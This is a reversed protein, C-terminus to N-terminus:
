MNEPLCHSTQRINLILIFHNWTFFNHFEAHMYKWRWGLRWQMTHSLELKNLIEFQFSKNGLLQLLDYPSILYAIAASDIGLTLYLLPTSFHIKIVKSRFIHRNRMKTLDNVHNLAIITTYLSHINMELGIIFLRRSNFHTKWSIHSIILIFIAGEVWMCVLCM